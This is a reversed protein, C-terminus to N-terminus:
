VSMFSARWGSAVGLRSVGTRYFLRRHSGTAHGTEDRRATDPAAATPASVISRENTRMRRSRSM